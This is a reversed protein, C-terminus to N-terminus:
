KWDMEFVLTFVDRVNGAIGKEDTQLSLILPVNIEPYYLQPELSVIIRAAAEAAKILKDKEKTSM